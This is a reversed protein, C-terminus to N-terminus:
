RCARRMLQVHDYSANPTQGPDPPPIWLMEAEVLPPNVVYQTYCSIQFRFNAYGGPPFYDPFHEVPVYLTERPQIGVTCIEVTTDVEKDYPIPPPFTGCFKVQGTYDNRILWVTCWLPENYDSNHVMFQVSSLDATGDPMLLDWYQYQEGPPTEPWGCQASVPLPLAALFAFMALSIMVKRTMTVVEKEKPTREFGFTSFRAATISLTGNM